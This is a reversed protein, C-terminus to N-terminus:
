SLPSPCVCDLRIDKKYILGLKGKDNYIVPREEGKTLVIKSCDFTPDIRKLRPLLLNWGRKTMIYVPITLGVQAIAEPAIIEKVYKSACSTVVDAKEAMMKAVKKSIATSCLAFRYVNIRNMRELEEIKKLRSNQMFATTVVINKYGKKIAQKLGIVQDIYGTIPFIPEIGNLEANQVIELNTTTHFLGTMKAVSGEVADPNKGGILVTGLSNSVQVVADITKTAMAEALIESTGYYVFRDCISLPRNAGFADDNKLVKEKFYNLIGQKSESVGKKIGYTNLHREQLPCTLILPESSWVPERNIMLVFAGFMRSVDVIPSDARIKEILEALDKMTNALVNIRYKDKLKCIIIKEGDSYKEICDTVSPYIIREKLEEPLDPFLQLIKKASAIKLRCKIYGTRKQLKIDGNNGNQLVDIWEM